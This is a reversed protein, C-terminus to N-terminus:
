LEKKISARYVEPSTNITKKFIRSFYYADEYGLKNAIQKVRLETTYLLHCAEQMKLLIFYDIPPMGTAKRFLQSFHSESLHNILALERVKIIEELHEKMYNITYEVMNREIDNTKKQTQKQAYVFTSILHYLCLNANTMNEISYGQSLSDYMKNWINIGEENYPIYVPSNDMGIQLLENLSSLQPGTFHVWYITWPDERNAGYSLPKTTAPIIVFQNAQMEYKTGDMTYYGKGDLCYFLINDECGNRRDRYHYRANPYYGIHTIYIPCFSSNKIMKSLISIPISILKEGDFGHRIRRIRKKNM